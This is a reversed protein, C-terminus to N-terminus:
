AADFTLQPSTAPVDVNQVIVDNRNDADTSYLAAGDGGPSPSEDVEWTIPLPPLDTVGEFTISSVQGASLYTGVGDRFRVFDGGNPPAGPTDYTDDTDWNISANLRDVQYTASDGGTLTAGDDIQADVAM